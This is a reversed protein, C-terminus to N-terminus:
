PEVLWVGGVRFLEYEQNESGDKIRRVFKGIASDGGVTLREFAVTKPDEAVSQLYALVDKGKAGDLSKAFTPTVVRRVAAMDGARAARFYEALVKGQATQWAKDGSADAAKSPSFVADFRVDVKYTHNFARDERESYFRGKLSKDTFSEVNLKLTPAVVNGRLPLVEIYTSVNKKSDDFKLEIMSVGDKKLASGRESEDAIAKASLPKDTLILFTEPKGTQRSATTSAYAHKFETPKGNVTMTGVSTNQAGSQVTFFALFVASTLAFLRRLRQEVQNCSGDSTRRRPSCSLLLHHHLHM